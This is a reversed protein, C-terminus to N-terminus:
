CAAVAPANELLGGIMNQLGAEVLDAIEAYTRDIPLNVYSLDSVDIEAPWEAVFERADAEDRFTVATDQGAADQLSFFAFGMSVGVFIGDKKHTIVTRM